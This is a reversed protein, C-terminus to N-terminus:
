GKLKQELDAIRKYFGSTHPSTEFKLYVHDYHHMFEHILTGLMTKISVVQKKVATLNYLTIVECGVNYTGLTKSKLRGSFGISHPQSRNVVKVPASAIKFKKCLYDILNQALKQRNNISESAKLFANYETKSFRNLAVATISNSAQYIKDSAKM